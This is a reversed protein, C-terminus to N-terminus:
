AKRPQRGQGNLWTRVTSWEWAPYMQHLKDAADDLTKFEARHERFYTLADAKDAKSKVNGPKAFGGTAVVQSHLKPGGPGGIAALTRLVARMDQAAMAYNWAAREQGSEYARIGFVCAVTAATFKCRWLDRSLQLRRSKQKTALIEQQVADATHILEVLNLNPDRALSRWPGAMFLQGAEPGDFVSRALDSIIEILYLKPSLIPLAAPELIQQDTATTQM